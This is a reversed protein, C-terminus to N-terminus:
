MYTLLDKANVGKSWVHEYKMEKMCLQVRTVIHATREYITPM